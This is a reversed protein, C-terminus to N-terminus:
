KDNTSVGNANETGVIHPVVLVYELVPVQQAGFKLYQVYKHRELM